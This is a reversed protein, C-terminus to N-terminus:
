ELDKVDWAVATIVLGTAELSNSRTGSRDTFFDQMHQGLIHINIQKYILSTANKNSVFSNLPWLLENEPLNIFLNPFQKWTNETYLYLHKYLHQVKVSIPM